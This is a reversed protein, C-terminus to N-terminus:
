QSAKCIYASWGLHMTFITLGRIYSALEKEEEKSEWDAHSTKSM